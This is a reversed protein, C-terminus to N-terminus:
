GLKKLGPFFATLVDAHEVAGFYGGSEDEPDFTIVVDHKASLGKVARKCYATTDLDSEAIVFSTSEDWWGRGEERLNDMLQDYRNDYTKGDVTRKAIRFTTCYRSM